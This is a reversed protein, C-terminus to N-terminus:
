VKVSGTNASHQWRYLCPIANLFWRNATYMQIEMFLGFKETTHNNFM